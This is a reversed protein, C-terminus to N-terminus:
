LSGAAGHDRDNETFLIRHGAALQSKDATFNQARGVFTFVVAALDGPGLQNVANRAIQQARKNIDPEVKAYADDM